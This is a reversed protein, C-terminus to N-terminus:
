VVAFTVTEITAGVRNEVVTLADTRTELVVGTGSTIVTDFSYLGTYSPDDSTTTSITVTEVAGSELEVHVSNQGGSDATVSVNYTQPILRSNQLVVNIDMTEGLGVVPNETYITGEVDFEISQVDDYRLISLIANYIDHLRGSDPNIVRIIFDYDGLSSDPISFTFPIIKTEGSELYVNKQSTTIGEVELELRYTHDVYGTNKITVRTTIEQGPYATPNAAYAGGVAPAPTIDENEANVIHADELRFVSGIGSSLKALITFLETKLTPEKGEVDVFAIGLTENNINQYSSFPIDGLVIGVIDVADNDYSLNVYAGKVTTNNAYVQVPVTTGEVGFGNAIEIEAAESIVLFGLGLIMLLTMTTVIGLSIKIKHKM